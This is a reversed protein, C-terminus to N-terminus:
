RDTVRSQTAVANNALTLTNFKATSPIATLYKIYNTILSAAITPTMQTGTAASGWWFEM